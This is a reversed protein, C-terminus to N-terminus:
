TAATKGDGNVPSIYLQTSRTSGGVNLTMVEGAAATWTTMSTSVDDALVTTGAGIVVGGAVVAMVIRRWALSNRTHQDKM